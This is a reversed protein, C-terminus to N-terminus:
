SIEPNEIIFSGMGLINSKFSTVVQNLNDVVEGEVVVAKGDAGIATFDIKSSIGQIMKGGEPFFQLDLYDNNPSFSAKYKSKNKTDVEIEVRKTTKPIQFELAYAGEKNPNLAITDRRENESIILRLAENYQKDISSPFVDAVITYSTSSSDIVRINQIVDKFTDLDSESHIQVYKEFVFDSEFNKNWETYARILYVGEEFGRDLDFYGNGIGNKIKVLKSTIIQSESNILNVYLIGSSYEGNHSAANLIIAKFWITKNTTYV